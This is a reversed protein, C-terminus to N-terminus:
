AAIKGTPNWKGDDPVDCGHGSVRRFEFHLEEAPDFVSEIKMTFFFKLFELADKDIPIESSAPASNERDSEGVFGDLLADPDRRYSAAFAFSRLLKEYATSMTKTGAECRSYHEPSMDLFNALKYSKVGLSLRIFKLEESNLKRAHCIRSRVVTNILGILDPIRVLKEGTDADVRISVSDMLTVKFPAGLTDAEYRRVVGCEAIPKHQTM